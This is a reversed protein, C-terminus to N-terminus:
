LIANLRKNPIFYGINYQARQEIADLNASKLCILVVFASKLSTLGIGLDLSM